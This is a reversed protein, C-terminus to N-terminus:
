LIAIEKKAAEWYGEKLPGNMAEDWTPNDESNAKAALIMPHMWEILNTIPDTEDQTLSWMKRFEYSDLMDITKTWQLMALFQDNM